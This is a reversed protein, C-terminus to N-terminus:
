RCAACGTNQAGGSLASAPEVQPLLRFDHRLVVAESFRMAPKSLVSQDHVGLPTCGLLGPALAGLVLWASRPRNMAPM